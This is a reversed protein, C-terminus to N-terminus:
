SDDEEPNTLDSLSLGEYPSATSVPLSVTNVLNTSSAKTPTPVTSFINTSSPKAAGEQIVLHEFKKRLVKAEENARREAAKAKCSAKHQKGKQCAVCTHDNQFLKSPLGRVLNGKVLKNLNKFNVHGLRRHWKNSEDATAKAILCALGGSPVINELNFSYMNNQRPIKLLVQNDDPLKFEPSLVLCESDTFLVKNKKDCMQSVSFLNFHQLEKVFCVDEFDLKGTKIKGKGTIYGKSGGFAVPGGNFDQFEDLYAKNGTMHRSCGSDVIGKNKLARHPYDKILICKNRHRQMVLNNRKPADLLNQISADSEKCKNSCSIVEEEAVTVMHRLIWWKDLEAGIRTGFEWADRRRNIKLKGQIGKLYSMILSVQSWASPLSRLFKQNADETSVGAGHIELQSLLSQFRDYGKHLGETNSVSFGEFQNLKLYVKADENWWTLAAGLLTCTAFKVQNEIACGSINFVSEMKEIWRTLGVVGETGQITLTQIYYSLCRYSQRPSVQSPTEHAVCSHTQLEQHTAQSLGISHAWAERSAYAEEEVMWVTEQLTMRDGMLLDVRQSDMAVRQLIRTRSDQAEELLAYLDQTNREHLEALEAVRTSVEGLTTPAIEPVVETPDVCTDRIGYRVESIGHQRAEADVTSVFRYDIERGGTPRATSSEGVEYRSGLTSLCLRKRPPQEFEPIDDRRDVPPQIYQSPPLPPPPPLLPSPLATTVADILAQTSTIRLTQIQTPCGSSPLLPSPVPPPSSHAPPATCRVLREGTSPPSLSIPPSPSPTTMALLREVEAEPPLSISAQPRVTIRAGITIDTSPPPIVPETGEPPSVPEVTPVVIAFDTPALHKEDEEDEAEDEDDVDDRSSDGDDDDGDDGGDMPYDVPGDETEDDEYEEPDEEPDSETVYEPSEATPSDVPPLPQEEALFEHEDELPIYEPYIPEPVYDHDHAQIFMPEREDEDQPVPPTQPDEPGPIYDPSPPAVPQNEIVKARSVLRYCGWIQTAASHQIDPTTPKLNNSLLPLSKPKAVFKICILTLEQFRETYTPVDNGKVKLNWLEIELKKIEGQPCYKDTIKKKLVEWTMSYAEPGLTRDSWKTVEKQDGPNSSWACKTGKLEFTSEKTSNRQLAQDIMAQVSEPTMNNPNTNSTPTNHGRRTTPAMIQLRNQRRSLTMRDGMLLDVRQSDMDVRQSIRSRSDQADELLAYLDQTDHEHLEALETVRTNVEEVTMPAIEPVAEAPDVWTDRIGYGVESTGQRRAEADVTSVFGYDVGRGRTPRATSSEGIEYRSGLTSLCLRKRPPQESEPIDDRRDVPPPIYLSPPLPPLPPSPLAATVADILAQTSAIRLTQVQTPCGSSPLLPSPVPPPSSHAPPAMCRALREGASPPSLSIPPSPSPTTMALLREVEAEPPLSISAQLRVTIRAGITSIDTSSPPIVPETGEPPSVPEGTPIVIASDAPALHEEEEEDEEDEEDEDEDDADDGSSDGDDDDGDDGGDMPYDVPGDEAEEDEYEEPDEEPDSESIYGPSEATPSDVPPLPQEEASFEHFMPECEDEDQPVLPTQPDKPCPIYDPSPLAVPQMPLGDYGLVIVRPVGGDFIEEDAGWFVRGPESDTYVSTYTVASSASSVLTHFQEDSCKAGALEATTTGVSSGTEGGSSVLGTMGGGEVSMVLRRSPNSDVEPKWIGEVSASTSLFEPWSLEMVKVVVTGDGNSVMIQTDM